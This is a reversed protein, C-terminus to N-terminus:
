CLWKHPSRVIAVAVLFVVRLFALVAALSGV